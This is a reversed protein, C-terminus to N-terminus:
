GRKQRSAFNADGIVMSTPQFSTRGAIVFAEHSTLSSCESDVCIKADAVVAVVAADVDVVIASVSSPQYVLMSKEVQVQAEAAEVAPLDPSNSQKM